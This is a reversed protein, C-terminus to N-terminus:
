SMTVDKAEQSAMASVGERAATSLKLRNKERDSM